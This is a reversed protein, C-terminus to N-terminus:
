EPSVFCVDCRASDCSPTDTHSLTVPCCRGKGVPQSSKEVHHEIFNIEAVDTVIGDWSSNVLRAGEPRHHRRSDNEGDITFNTILVSQDLSHSNPHRTYIVCRIDRNRLCVEEALRNTFEPTHVMEGVHSFRIRPQRAFGQSKAYECEEVSADIAKEIQKELKKFVLDRHSLNGNEFSEGVYWNLVGRFIRQLDRDRGDHAYCRGGCIKTPICTALPYRIGVGQKKSVGFFSTRTAYSLIDVHQSSLKLSELMRNELVARFHFLRALAEERESSKLVSRRSLAALSYYARGPEMFSDRVEPVSFGVHPESRELQRHVTAAEDLVEKAPRTRRKPGWKSVM